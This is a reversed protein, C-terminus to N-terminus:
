EESDAAAGNRDKKQLKITESVEDLLNRVSNLRFAWVTNNKGNPSLKDLVLEAESLWKQADQNQGLSKAHISSETLADAYMYKFVPNNPNQELLSRVIERYEAFEATAKTRASEQKSHTMALSRILGARIQIYEANNPSKELLVSIRSLADRCYHEAKSYEHKSMAIDALHTLAKSQDYPYEANDRDMSELQQAISICQEFAAQAREYCESTEKESSQTMGLRKEMQGITFYASALAQRFSLRHPANESLEYLIDKSENLLTGAVRFDDSDMQQVALRMLAVALGKRSSEHRPYDKVLQRYLRQMENLRNQRIEMQGSNDALQAATGIAEALTCLYDPNNPVEKCVKHLLILAKEALQNGEKLMNRRRAIEARSNLTKALEYRLAINHEDQEILSEYLATAKRYSDTADALKGQQMLVAGMNQWATALSHQLRVDNAIPLEEMSDLYKKLNTGLKSQLQTSGPLDSLATNFDHLLGETFSLGNMYMRQTQSKERWAIISLGGLVMIIVVAIAMYIRMRLMMSRPPPVIGTETCLRWTAADQWRERPDLSLARDIAQLFYGPYYLQLDKRGSLPKYPDPTAHTRTDARPPLLRTILYYFCAGLSYIDTRVSLKSSMEEDSRATSQEPACFDPTYINNFVKGSQLQRASGFDLLVPRSEENVIINEPKIDRHVINHQELYELTFLLSHLFQMNKRAESVKKNRDLTPQETINLPSGEVFPMAYYATGNAEFATLIPVIGPHELGMLISVEEIFEALTVRFEEEKEPSCSVVTRGDPMRMAMGEPIHEKIVVINGSDIHRARYTIGFGGKGLKSIITYEGVISGPPLPFRMNKADRADSPDVGPAEHPARPANVHALSPPPPPQPVAGNPATSLPPPPPNM